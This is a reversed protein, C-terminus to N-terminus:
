HQSMRAMTKPRSIFFISALGALYLVTMMVGADLSSDTRLQNYVVTAVAPMIFNMTGLLSAATGA